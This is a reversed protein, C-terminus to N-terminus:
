IKPDINWSDLQWKDNEYYFTCIKGTAIKFNNNKIRMEFENPILKLFYRLRGNSSIVLTTANSHYKQILENAFSNTENTIIKESSGWGGTTPWISHKEWREFEQIGFQKQIQSSTLGSWKGYDIENLRFDVIPKLDSALESLIIQAYVLTRQLPGCYIADLKLNSKKLFLALTKAQEIGASTLSLDNKSGVWTPTENSEFTNGHRALILKM